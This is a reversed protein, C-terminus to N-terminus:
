VSARSQLPPVLGHRRLLLVHWTVLLAVALPLILMHFSYMQGFNTVNFFAGAGIANFGARAQTALWQSDFSQQSLYGTLAAPIAVLFGLAGTIWVRKGGHRWAATFFQGALNITMFLFLLEVAWLHISNFFRGVGAYHWWAPGKLSLIMGSLLLVVLAALAATGCAYTLPRPSRGRAALRGLPLALALLFLVLTVALLVVNAVTMQFFHWHVTHAPHNLDVIAGM